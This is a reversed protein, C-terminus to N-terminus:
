HIKLANIKEADFRLNYSSFVLGGGFWKGRYVRAGLRKAKWIADTYTKDLSTFHFVYRPNGYMDPTINWFTVGDVTESFNYNSM